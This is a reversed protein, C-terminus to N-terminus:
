QEVPRRIRRVASPFSLFQREEVSSVLKNPGYRDPLSISGSIWWAMRRFFAPRAPMSVKCSIWSVRRWELFLLMIAIPPHFLIHKPSHTQAHSHILTPKPTPSFMLAGLYYRVFFAKRDLARIACVPATSKSM